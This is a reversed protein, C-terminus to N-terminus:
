SPPTEAWPPVRFAAVVYDVFARIRPHIYTDNAFMASIETDDKAQFESLLPILQGRRIAPLAFHESMRVVGGGALCMEVSSIGNSYHFSGNVQVDIAKEDVIFPWRNLHDMPPSRVFCNHFKLDYPTKPEGNAEIYRPSAVVMRQLDCLKRRLLSSDRLKGMRIAVDFGSGIVDVFDDSLSLNIRIGPHTKMFAPLLPVIQDVGFSTPADVSLTGHPIKAPRVEDEARKLDWLLKECTELFRQGEETLRVKRTTRKLLAVGLRDELQTITRSVFPQGCGLERAAANFGGQEAVAKFVSMEVLRNDKLARRQWRYEAM